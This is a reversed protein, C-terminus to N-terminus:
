RFVAPFDLDERGDITVIDCETVVGSEELLLQLAGACTLSRDGLRHTNQETRARAFM